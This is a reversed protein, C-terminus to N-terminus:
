LEKASNGIKLNRTGAFNKFVLEQIPYEQITKNQLIKKVERQKDNDSLEIEIQDPDDDSGESPKSLEDMDLYAEDMNLNTTEKTRDDNEIVQSNSLSELKSSSRSRSRNRKRKAPTTRKMM